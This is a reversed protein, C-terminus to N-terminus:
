RAPKRFRLIFQDTHGKIAPDFVKRMHDDAPNRLVKSEGDFVFGAALVQKKVTEEDIRHLTTAHSAGTGAADAHDLVIYLGGPKLAAFVAKDLVASVDTGSYGVVDHYNQATWVRDVSNPAAVTDFPAVVAKVNGYGPTAALVELDAKRKPNKQAFTEHLLGIVEGQADVAKSFIRTFYGGGPMLDVVHQGPKIKAFLLMDAPKRDADRASDGAPRSPDTIATAIYAPTASFAPAAVGAPVSALAALSVLHKKMVIERL